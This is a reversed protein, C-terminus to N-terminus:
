RAPVLGRIVVAFVAVSGLVLAAVLVLRLPDV